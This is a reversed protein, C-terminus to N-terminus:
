AASQTVPIAGSGRLAHSQRPISWTWHVGQGQYRHSAGAIYSFSESQFRRGGPTLIFEVLGAKGKILEPNSAFDINSVLAGGLTHATLQSLFKPGYQM